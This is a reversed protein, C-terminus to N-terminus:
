GEAPPLRTVGSVIQRASKARPKAHANQKAIKKRSARPAEGTAARQEGGIGEPAANLREAVLRTVLERIQDNTFGAIRAGVLQDIERDWWAGWSRSIKIAPPMLGRAVHEHVTSKALGTLRSVDRIRILRKTM